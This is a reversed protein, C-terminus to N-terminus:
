LLAHYRLHLGDRTATGGAVRIEIRHGRTTAARVQRALEAVQASSPARGCERVLWRRLVQVLRANPLQQLALLRPPHGADALDREAQDQLLQAAQACHRASRSLTDAAAPFAQELLPWIDQRLRNRTFRTDANSPDEVHPLAWDRAAAHVRAKPQGLWPRGFRVGHHVWDPSMGALGEVGSGRLLAMLVTEAQDQAHQAVWVAAVGAPHALQALADYRALRANEELSDGPAVAVVPSAAACRIGWAHATAECHAAFASAAAQLGHNVHLARVAQAGWLQGAVWLLATSDVGGSYAIGIPRQATPPPLGARALWGVLAQALPHTAWPAPPPAAPPTLPV